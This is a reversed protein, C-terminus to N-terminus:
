GLQAKTSAKPSFTNRDYNARRGTRRTIIPMTMTRNMGGNARGGHMTTFMIVM